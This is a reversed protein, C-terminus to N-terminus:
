IRIEWTLFERTSLDDYFSLVTQRNDEGVIALIDALSHLGDCAALLSLGHEGVNVLRDNEPCYVYDNAMPLTKSSNEQESDAAHIEELPFRLKRPILETMRVPFIHEPETNYRNETKDKPPLWCDKPPLFVLHSRSLVFFNALAAIGESKLMEELLSAAEDANMGSAVNYKSYIKLDEGEYPLIETIGFSQPDFHTPTHHELIFNTVAVQTIHEALGEISRITEMAEERTETPFGSFFMVFPRIGCKSCAKIVTRIRESRTGKRMHDLVRQVSSEMGFMLMRCGGKELMNVTAEDYTEEFRVEGFWQISLKGAAVARAIEKATAPPIAEDVLYFTHCNYRQSLKKLDEIFYPPSKMRFRDRYLHYHSCFACRGWYCGRSSLIPLILEPSLYHDLELGTFDPLPLDRLNPPPPSPIIHAISDKFSLVGPVSTISRGARLASLLNHLPIEGEYPIWADVLEQFQALVEWRNEYFCVLGGGIIIKTETFKRRLQKALTMAPILQCYYNLSIGVVDPMKCTYTSLFDEIFPLFLNQQHDGTAALVESSSTPRHGMSFGRAYWRVPYYAASVLEMGRKVIVASKSYLRRDKYIRTSRLNDLASPLAASIYHSALSNSILLKYEVASEKQLEPLRELQSIRREIKQGCTEIHCPSLLYEYSMLNLDILDVEHGQTRLYGALAAIGLPPHAPDSAPPFVLLTRM